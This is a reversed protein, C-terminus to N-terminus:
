AFERQIEPESTARFLEDLTDAEESALFPLYVLNHDTPHRTRLFSEAHSHSTSM